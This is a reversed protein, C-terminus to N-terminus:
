LVASVALCGSDLNTKSPYWAESELIGFVEPQAEADGPQEWTSLFVMWPYVPNRLTRFMYLKSALSPGPGLDPKVGQMCAESQLM